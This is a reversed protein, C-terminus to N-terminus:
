SCCTMAPKWTESKCGPPLLFFCLKFYITLVTLPKSVSENQVDFESGQILHAQPAIVLFVM